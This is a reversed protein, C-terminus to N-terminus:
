VRVLREVKLHYTGAERTNMKLGCGSSLLPPELAVVFAGGDDPYRSSRLWRNGFYFSAVNDERYAPEILVADEFTVRVYDGNEVPCADFIAISVNTSFGNYIEYYTRADGDFLTEWHDGEYLPIPDYAPYVVNGTSKNEVDYNSWTISYAAQGGTEVADGETFSKDRWEQRVWDKDTVGDATHIWYHISKGESKAYLVGVIESCPVSTLTLYAFTVHDTEEPYSTTSHITAYPYESKDWDPLPPLIHGNKYLYSVPEKKAEAMLNRRLLKGLLFWKVENDTM